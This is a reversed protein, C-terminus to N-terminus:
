NGANGTGRGLYASVVEPNSTVEQPTGEAIKSGHDMVLVRESVGMVVRMVHEVFIITMRKKLERILDMMEDMEKPKLGTMVEDLLLVKPNTALAKGLELRKRELTTLEGGMSNAKQKLSVQQLIEDVKGRAEAVTKSKPLLAVLINDAVSLGPFPRAVQFTRTIGLECIADPTMGVIDKGNYLISGSDVTYFNTILNFLTSKGAGNPGIISLIENEYVDFSVDNTAQLGGFRKSIGKVQLICNSM